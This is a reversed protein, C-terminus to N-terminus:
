DAPLRMRLSAPIFLRIWTAAIAKALAMAALALMALTTGVLQVQPPGFGGVVPPVPVDPEVAGIRSRVPPWEAARLSSCNAPISPPVCVQGRQV